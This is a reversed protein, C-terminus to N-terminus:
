PRNETQTVGLVKLELIMLRDHLMAARQDRKNMESYMMIELARFKTTLWIVLSIVSLTWTFLAGTIALILMATDNAIQM